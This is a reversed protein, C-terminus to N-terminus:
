MSVFVYLFSFMGKKFFSTVLKENIISDHLTFIVLNGEYREIERKESVCPFCHDGVRYVQESFSSILTFYLFWLTRRWEDYM